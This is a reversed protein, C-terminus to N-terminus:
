LNWDCNVSNVANVILHIESLYRCCYLVSFGLHRLIGRRDQVFPKSDRSYSVSPDDTKQSALNLIHFNNLVRDPGVFIVTRSFLSSKREM